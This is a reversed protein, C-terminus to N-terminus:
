SEIGDDDLVVSYDELSVGVNRASQYAITKLVKEDALFRSLRNTAGNGRECISLFLHSKARTLAVYLLRREEELDDGNRIAFGSPLVGDSVGILFVAKWELGKASHITSLTLYNGTEDEASQAPIGAHGAQMSTEPSELIFDNLLADLSSYRASISAILELDRIRVNWDDFKEKMIEAYYALLGQIRVPVPIAENELEAVIRVLRSLGRSYSFGSAYQAIGKKFIADATKGGIGEIQTVIRLFSIEDRRNQAYKMHAFFDKIHALEYFKLGGFVRFPIGERGLAAQLPISVFSSRFLVAQSSLPIGDRVFEDSKEKIWEAESYIDSFACLSPPAGSAGSAARLRKEYKREMGDLVANASDLIAQTSRYNDELAIVSCHPFLSPFSMINEHTAGRFAYISQADDGVVMINRHGRALEYAIEGQVKNTDQYEDIMVYKFKGEIRSRAHSDRLLALLSALLDDYDFYGRARKYAEYEQAIREFWMTHAILHPYGGGLVNEVSERKNNSASLVARVTSKVAARDANPYRAICRGIAEEADGEDLVMIREVGLRSAHKKIMRLAFSHFTGGEVRACKKELKAARGLMEQAARRTFTLLLISEPGVGRRVLEMTRYEIVRTKGSGAGAIVLLPGETTRVAMKQAENLEPSIDIM